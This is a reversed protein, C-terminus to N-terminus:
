LHIESMMQAEQLLMTTNNASTTNSFSFYVCYQFHKVNYAILVTNLSIIFICFFFWSLTPCLTLKLAPRSVWIVYYTKLLWKVLLLIIRNWSPSPLARVSWDQRQDMANKLHTNPVCMTTTSNLHSFRLLPLHPFCSAAAVDVLHIPSVPPAAACGPLKYYSKSTWLNFYRILDKFGRTQM